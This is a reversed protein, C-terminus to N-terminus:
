IPPPYCDLSSKEGHVLSSGSFNSRQLLIRGRGRGRFIDAARAAPAFAYSRRTLDSRSNSASYVSRSSSTENSGSHKPSRGSDEFAAKMSKSTNEILSFMEQRQDDIVAELEKIKQILEFHQMETSGLSQNEIDLSDIDSNLDFQIASINQLCERDLSIKGVEDILNVSSTV